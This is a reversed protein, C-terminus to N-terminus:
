GCWVFNISLVLGIYLMFGILCFCAGVLVAM